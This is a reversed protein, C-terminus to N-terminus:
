VSHYGSISLNLLCDTPTIRRTPTSDSLPVSSIVLTLLKEFDEQEGYNKHLVLLTLWCVFLPELM